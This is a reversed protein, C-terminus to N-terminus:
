STGYCLGREKMLNAEFIEDFIKIGKKSAQIINFCACKFNEDTIVYVDKIKNCANEFQQILEDSCDVVVKCAKSVFQSCYWIRGHVYDCGAIIQEVKSMYKAIYAVVNKVSKGKNTKYLSHIDVSNPNKWNLAKQENYIKIYRKTLEKKREPSVVSRLEDFRMKVYEDETCKCMKESYRDVYGLKNCIRNWRVRLDSHPIYCDVLIHFHISGNDQKEAKWIYNTIGYQKKLEILIQNLCKSKIEQDTHYFETHSYQGKRNEHIKKVQSSPLTLTIFGVKEKGKGSNLIEKDVNYLYTFIRKYIRSYSKGSIKGKHDNSEPLIVNAHKPKYFDGTVSDLLRNFITVTTPTISVQPYDFFRQESNM